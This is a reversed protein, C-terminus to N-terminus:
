ALLDGIMGLVDEFIPLALVMMTCKCFIELADGLATHHQDRCLSISLEGLICVGLIKFIIVGYEAPLGSQEKLASLFSNIKEFQLFASLLVIIAGAFACFGAYTANFEKLVGCIICIVVGLIITKTM